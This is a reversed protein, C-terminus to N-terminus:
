FWGIISIIWVWTGEIRIICWIHRVVKAVGSVQNSSVNYNVVKAWVFFLYSWYALYKRVLILLKICVTVLNLAKITLSLHMEILLLKHLKIVLLSWWFFLITKIIICIWLMWLLKRIRILRREIAIHTSAISICRCTRYIVLFDLGLISHITVSWWYLVLVWILEIM